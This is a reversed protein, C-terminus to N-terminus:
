INQLEDSLPTKKIDRIFRKCLNHISMSILKSNTDKLVIYELDILMTDDSKPKIYKVKM